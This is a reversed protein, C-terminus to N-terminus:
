TPVKSILHAVVPVVHGWFKVPLFSQFLLSRPVVLFHQHKKEVVGNQQLTDVCSLHHLIGKSSYVKALKFELDNDSRIIKIKTFVQTLVM